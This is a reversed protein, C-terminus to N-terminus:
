LISTVRLHHIDVLTDFHFTKDTFMMVQSSIKEKQASCLSLEERIQNLESKAKSLDTHIAEMEHSHRNHM